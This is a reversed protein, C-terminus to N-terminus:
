KNKGASFISAPIGKNIQYSSYTIDVKGKGDTAKQQAPKKKGTEYEMTVGKPLKFDRTNFTFLVKDPLGWNAYRGYQLQTEYTGNDRTTTTSRYVLASSEEIYLTTLAIESNEQVPLLKVVALKKNNWNAYGGAVAVFDKNSLLSNLSVSVGGKPLISIGDEKVIKFQDPDKFYVKVKSDPINMFSVDTKLMGDAVYDKVKAMKVRVQKLLGNADQALVPSCGILGMLIILYRM